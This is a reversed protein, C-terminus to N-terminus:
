VESETTIYSYLLPKSGSQFIEYIMLAYVLAYEIIIIAVSENYGSKFYGAYTFFILLSWVVPFLYGTFVSFAVLSIIYWPHVTTSLSLFIVFIWSMAIFINEDKSTTLSYIMVLIFVTLGLFPGATQIINYGKVFFGIERVIYYISANFEFKQFYLSISQTMGDILGELLPLFLISVIIVLVGFFKLLIRKSLRRFLLPLYLLPLLKTAVALGWLVASSIYQSKMLMYVALCLFLLMIGEHHLNGVGEIIVLPNLAYVAIYRGSLKLRRLIRIMVMLLGAEAAFAFLKMVLVSGYVDNPFISTATLFIFQALPPYVTFYEASNLRYFLKADLNTASSVKLYELPLFEFPNNGSSLIRGDWIFRYFDDSLTPLGILVVIRLLLALNFIERTKYDYLHKIQYLYIAFLVSFVALLPPHQEREIFFSLLILGAFSLAVLGNKIM